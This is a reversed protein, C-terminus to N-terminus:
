WTEQVWRGGKGLGNVVKEAQEYSIGGGGGGMVVKGVAERVGKPMAGSSGCLYFVGGNVLNDYVDRWAKGSILKQVYGVEPKTTDATGDPLLPKPDRSFITYLKILSKSALMELESHFFFDSSRNRNGFILTTKTSPNTHLRHWILARIPAVGTGPAIALIPLTPDKPIFSQTAPHSIVINLPTNPPLSALYNSCLGIRPRSLKTKYKVIAVLLELKDSAPTETAPKAGPPPLENGFPSSSVSFLRPKIVPFYPNVLADLPLKVANFDELTELLTRRPRLTYNWLDETYQPNSFQLLRDKHMPDEAYDALFQFFSRRPIATIDLINTLLDRLTFFKGPEVLPLPRLEPPYNAILYPTPKLELPSDAYPALHPQLTLFADVATTPNRPLVSVTDGPTYVTPKSLSLEFLRVDQFHTEPTVRENKTITATISNPRLSFDFTSVGAPAPHLTSDTSAPQLTWKPPITADEPMVEVGPPLPFLQLLKDCLVKAWEIFLSDVGGDDQDDGEAHVMLEQAGLQRLRARVKKAAWNYNVYSSDGCGFSTVKTGSLWDKLLNKRLLYKWFVLANAPLDGQGATSVVFVVTKHEPLTSADLANMPLVTPQFRCRELMRGLENALDESTGTESGYLITIPRPQPQPQSPTSTSM